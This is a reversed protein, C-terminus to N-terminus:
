VDGVSGVDKILAWANFLCDVTHMFRTLGLLSFTGHKAHFQLFPFFDLDSLILKIAESATSTTRM